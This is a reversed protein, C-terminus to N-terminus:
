KDEKSPCTKLHAPMERGSLKVGCELPCFFKANAIIQEQVVNRAVGGFWCRCMPCKKNIQSTCEECLGHGNQCTRIPGFPVVLCVPCRVICYLQEASIDVVQDTM